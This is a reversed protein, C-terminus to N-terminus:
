AITRWGPVANEFPPMYYPDDAPGVVTYGNAQYEAAGDHDTQVPQERYPTQPSSEQNRRLQEARTKCLYGWGYPVLGVEAECKLCFGTRAEPDRNVVQHESRVRRNAAAKEPNRLRWARISNAKATKCQYGNGVRAIAVRGSCESCHATMGAVSRDSLSHRKTETSHVM